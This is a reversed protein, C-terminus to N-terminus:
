SKQAVVYLHKEPWQDYELHRSICGNEALLRLTEPIGLVSYFVPVGMSADHKEEPADLGGTTFILVGGPALGAILKELVPAQEALPLHWTSDWASIFDYQRPLEWTSIDALHFSGEPCNKKALAIMEPSVDVGEVQFGQSHLLHTFRTNCGCGVDLAFHPAKADIFQLARQFAAIGNTRLRPELWQHAIQDYSRAIESPLM